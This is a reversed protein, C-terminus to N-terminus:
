RNGLMWFGNFLFIIPTFALLSLANKTMTDDMAPPLQYVYAIMFRETAWFVFFSLVAIPFLVPLGIGYMMTVYIINLLTSYKYHVIHDPGTYLDLYAYIQTTQTTYKAKLKDKEWKQDMRQFLWCQAVTMAEYIPPMISNLAMTSVLTEGVLAYWKPTYDKFSGKFIEGLFGPNIEELNAQVLLLLIATNFFLAIFVGNTINTMLRSHTDYGIWTIMRITIEKLIMNIVIITIM